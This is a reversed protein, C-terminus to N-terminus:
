GLEVTNGSGSNGIEPDGSHFTVRNDMGSADITETSDVTIANEIGSVQVDACHGTITVTNSVGSISVVNDDCALTKVEGVGSFSIQGGPAAPPESQVSPAPEIEGIGPANPIPDFSGGRDVPPTPKSVAVGGTFVDDYYTVVGAVVGILGAIVAGVIVPLWNRNPAPPPPFQPGGYWGQPPPYPPPYAQPYTPPPPYSGGSPSVGLESTQAIDSAPRELERIRAEPDEEPNM